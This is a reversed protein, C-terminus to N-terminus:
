KSSIRRLKSLLATLLSVKAPGRSAAEEKPPTPPTAPLRRDGSSKEAEAAYWTLARGDGAKPRVKPLVRRGKEAEAKERAPLSRWSTSCFSYLCSDSCSASALTTSAGPFPRYLAVPIGLKPSLSASQRRCSASPLGGFLKM